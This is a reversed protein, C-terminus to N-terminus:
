GGNEGIPTWNFGNDTSRSAYGKTSVAVWNGNGNCGVTGFTENQATPPIKLPQKANVITPAIALLGATSRIFNRRNM